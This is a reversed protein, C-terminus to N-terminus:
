YIGPLLRLKCRCGITLNLPALPDGPFRIPEKDVIFYENVPVSKGHLYVHAPRVRDDRKSIWTKKLKPNAKSAIEVAKFVGGNWAGHSESEAALRRRKANLTAFVAVVAGKLALSREEEDKVLLPGVFAVALEKKLTENMKQMRRIQDDAESDVDVAQEIGVQKLTEKASELLIAKIIPRLDDAMQRNWVEMDFAQDIGPSKAMKPGGAKEKIVREQREFLRTMALDLIETWRDISDDTADKYEVDALSMSAEIIPGGADPNNAQGETPGSPPPTDPGLEAPAGGEPPPPADIPAQQQPVFKKETNAIPTLNPNALLSDALESDVKKKGTSERYENVSTLAKDVEDMLFRDREQKVLVLVPVESTNFDVYNDDDLEDFARALLELHPLMTEMWFVRLEEAANSFTRGSSNGIAPEPVGFAALIEDKTIERMQVYAADRMNASTDIVDIGGEAGIVSTKGARYPGGSFRAELEERDDPDVEDRVVLMMGPRGDQLLFNRNYTKALNEIDIAVGASELPTLSLYPDLPHPKRIWLVDKPKLYKFGGSPMTVQYGSVFDVPDPIPATLSPPLLNLSLLRGDRGWVKEIFVGRTSMLLQSSVRYRFAAANEGKNARNNLLKSVDTPKKIIEGNPDNDKRLVVPLRSQNGAIADICRYVWTVKRMAENYAREISWGDEYARGVLSPTIAVPAGPGIQGGKTEQAVQLSKVERKNWAM